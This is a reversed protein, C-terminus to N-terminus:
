PLKLSTEQEEPQFGGALISEPKISPALPPEAPTGTVKRDISKNKMM